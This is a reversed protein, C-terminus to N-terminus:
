RVLLPSPKTTEEFSAEEIPSRDGNSLLKKTIARSILEHSVDRSFSKNKRNRRKKLVSDEDSRASLDVESKLPPLCNHKLAEHSISGIDILHSKSIRKKHQQYMEFEKVQQKVSLTAPRSLIRQAIGQNEEAIRRREKNWMATRLSKPGKREVNALKLSRKGQAIENIRELLSENERMVEDYSSRSTSRSHRKFHKPLQNDIKKGFVGAKIQKLKKLHVEFSQNQTLQTMSDPIHMAKRM